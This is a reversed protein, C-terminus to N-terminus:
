ASEGLTADILTEKGSLIDVLRRELAHESRMRTILVSSARQGIRVLRDECQKNESPTYSQDVFLCHAARTLTLGVGGAQAAVALGQLMGEQFANVYFDRMAVRTEGTICGWGERPKGFDGGVLARLPETHSCFVVLPIKEEEYRDCFDIVDDIRAEALKARVTSMLEFPPLADPAIKGEAELGQWEAYIADLEAYLEPSLEVPHDAYVKPPLNKMVDRRLRRLMVPKLLESVDEVPEDAFTYGAFKGAFFQKKAGFARLFGAFDGFVQKELGLSELVGWLDIPKGEMPTGTLGLCRGTQRRLLRVKKTRDAHRNKVKHAEDILLTVDGLAYPILWRNNTIEPLGEFSVIVVERSGPVPLEGQKFKRLRACWPRAREGDRNLLSETLHDVGSSLAVGLDPRFKYVERAWNLRLSAPCVVITGHGSPLSRLASASKGLGMEDALLARKRQHLWKVGEAQYAFLGALNPPVPPEGHVARSGQTPRSGHVPRERLSTPRAKPATPRTPYAPAGTFPIGKREDTM